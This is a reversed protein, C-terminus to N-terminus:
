RQNAFFFVSTIEIQSTSQKLSTESQRVDITVTRMSNKKCPSNSYTYNCNYELSKKM